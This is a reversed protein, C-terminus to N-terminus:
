VSKGIWLQEHAKMLTKSSLGAINILENILSTGDQGRDIPVSEYGSFLVSLLEHRLLAFNDFFFEKCRVSVYVRM